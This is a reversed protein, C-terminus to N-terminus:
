HNLLALKLGGTNETSPKENGLRAFIKMRMIKCSKQKSGAYNQSLIM